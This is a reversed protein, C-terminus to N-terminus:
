VAAPDSRAASFRVPNRLRPLLSIRGAPEVLRQGPDPASDAGGRSAPSLAERV